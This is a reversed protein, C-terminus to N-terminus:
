RLHRAPNVCAHWPVAPPVRGPDPLTEPVPIDCRPTVAACGAEGPHEGPSGEPGRRVM